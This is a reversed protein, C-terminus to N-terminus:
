SDTLMIPGANGSDEYWYDPAPLASFGVHATIQVTAPSAFCKSPVRYNMVKRKANASFDLACKRTEGFGGFAPFRTFTVKGNEMRDVTYGYEGGLPSITLGATNWQRRELRYFRVTVRLDGRRNYRAEVSKMDLARKGPREAGTNRNLYTIDNRPDTVFAQNSSRGAGADSAGAAAPSLPLAAIIAASALACVVAKTPSRRTLHSM